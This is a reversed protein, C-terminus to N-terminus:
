KAGAEPPLLAAVEAWLEQWHQREPSPMAALPQPDRVGALDPDQQWQRLTRTAEAQATPSKKLQEAWLARDARLWDLAQQRLRAREQEQPPVADASRGAAALAAACAARYRHGARLDEALKPDAAFAEAALRAAARYCRKCRFCFEALDIQGLSDGPTERGDLLAPFQKELEVWREAQRLAKRIVPENPLLRAAGRFAAVAEGLQQRDRLVNGLNYHADAYERKLDLAKRLAVAAADLKKQHYLASGLNNYAEAFAPKREIAQRYAAVAEALKGQAKLSLGLNFHAEAFDPKRKVAQRFAEAAEGPKQQARLTVGLYFHAIASDPVLKVATRYADAAEVFKKQARLANGLGYYAEAYDSKSKIAQRFADEAEKWKQRAHLAHGLGCHAEALDRKLQLATRFAVAAEGPKKQARLATGLNAYAFAFDPKHHIAKRYAAIAENLKGQAHLATGLNFHLRADGPRFDLTKRYATVAEDLNQRAQLTIGLANYTDVYDGKLVLAKRLAGESEGLRKLRYLTVGLNFYALHYAELAVSRRYAAEAGEWKKQVSRAYGLWFHIRPNDRQRRVLDAFVEEAEAPQVADLLARGLAVGLQPRVARAARYYGIAEGLRPPHKEVLQALAHLLSVEGPHPALSSKLLSEARQEEGFATLVRALALAGLVSESGGAEGVLQRLRARTRDWHPATDATRQLPGAALLERVEKRRDDRDLRRAVELLGRWEAEPRPGRRRELAWADLGAVLDQVVPDPQVKLRTVVQAVPEGAVDVGWRRFAATFQEDVSPEPLATVLGKEDRQYAKTERPVAIDVLARLLEGNQRAQVIRAAVEQQLAAAEQRVAEGADGGGTIAAARDAAARAEALRALDHARWGADLLARAQEMVLRTKQASLERRASAQWLWWGFGGGLALLLVLAAWLGAAAPRRRVWKLAREGPGVPRALVPEGALYRELDEALAEASAYRKSPEKRLCKLCITDLDHPTRPQLRRPPVADESLVQQLTEVATAARFPPRGTLLEYLLAGLAYVDTRPTIASPRGAAQEPAMYPPTGMVVGSQTQGAAADLQKALGFDAVKPLGETTMLVNAPKLDRHVVGRGHAAHLARAVTAVLRAAPRPPLPTGRLRDELSGGELLELAFFPLGGCEGIEYIQVIHPHQLRAVAEAERRFRALEEPDAHGGARIRKLAVLRNLRTDRAKYVIGMGGRGLEELVEYGPMPGGPGDPAVSRGLVTAWDGAATVQPVPPVAAALAGALWARDLGPFRALYEEAAPREGALRRYDIELPLLERLLAPREPEPVAALHDELRPRQGVRWAAEFRDCERDARPTLTASLDPPDRSPADSV